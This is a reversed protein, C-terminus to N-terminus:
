PQPPEAGFQPEPLLNESAGVVGRMQSLPVALGKDVLDRLFLSQSAAQVAGQALDDLETRSIAVMGPTEAPDPVPRPDGPVGALGARGVQGQAAECRLRVPNARAYRDVAASTDRAALLSITNANDAIRTKIDYERSDAADQRVKAVQQAAAFRERTQVHARQEGDLRCTQLGVALVAALAIGGYVKATTQSFLNLPLPIM